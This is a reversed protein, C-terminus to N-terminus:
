FVTTRLYREHGALDSFSIIKASQKGIEEWSQKRHQGHGVINGYTDFGMIEMGVSSTRGSEIEHKHRFLNVRALGRGDDLKGKVLVGLLTSKGADVNGVVAIRTEIVDEMDAPRRRVLVKGFCGLIKENQATAEKPGGVNYTLLLEIGANLMDAAARVRSLAVDWQEKTLDMWKSDIEQGIDFIAEGKGENVRTQIIASLKRLSESDRNDGNETIVHGDGLLLARLPGEHAATEDALGLQDLFNLEAHEESLSEQEKAIQAAQSASQLADRSGVSANATGGEAGAQAGPTFATRHAQQEDAYEAFESLALEGRRRDEPTPRNRYAAPAM